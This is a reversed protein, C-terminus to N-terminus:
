GALQLQDEHLGVGTLTTRAISILRVRGILIVLTHGIEWASVLSLRLACSDSPWRLSLLVTSEASASDDKDRRLIVPLSPHSAGAEKRM